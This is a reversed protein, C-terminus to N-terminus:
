SRVMVLAQTKLHHNISTLSPPVITVHINYLYMSEMVDWGQKERCKGPKQSNMYCGSPESTFWWYNMNALRQYCWEIWMWLNLKFWQRPTVRQRLLSTKMSLSIAAVMKMENDIWHIQIRVWRLRSMTCLLSCTAEQMANRMTHQMRNRIWNYQSKMPVSNSLEISSKSM